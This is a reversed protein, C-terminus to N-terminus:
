SSPILTKAGKRELAEHLQIVLQSNLLDARLLSNLRPIDGAFSAEQMQKRLLLDQKFAGNFREQLEEVSLEDLNVSSDAPSVRPVQIDPHMEQGARVVGQICHAYVGTSTEPGKGASALELNKMGELILAEGMKKLRASCESEEVPKEKVLRASLHLDKSSAILLSYIQGPELEKPIELQVDRNSRRVTQQQTVQGTEQDLIIPGIPRGKKFMGARVTLHHVQDISVSLQQPHTEQARDPKRCTFSFKRPNQPNIDSPLHVSIATKAGEFVLDVVGVDLGGRSSGGHWTNPGTWAFNLVIKESTATSAM